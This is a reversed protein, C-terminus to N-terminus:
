ALKTSKKLGARIGQQEGSYLKQPGEKFNQVLTKHRKEMREFQRRRKVRPNKDERKRKRTIGKAKMIDYNINRQIREGMKEVEGTIIQKTEIQQRKRSEKKERLREKQEEYVHDGKIKASKIQSFNIKKSENKSQHTEITEVEKVKTQKVIKKTVNTVNKIASESGLQNMM